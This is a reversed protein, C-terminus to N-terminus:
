FLTIGRVLSFLNSISVGFKIAQKTSTFSNYISLSGNANFAINTGKLPFYVGASLLAGTNTVGVKHIDSRSNVSDFYVEYIQYSEWIPGVTGGIIFTEGGVLGGIGLSFEHSIGDIKNTIFVNEFFINHINSYSASIGIYAQNVLHIGGMGFVGYGYDLYLGNYLGFDGGALYFVKQSSFPKMDFSGYQEVRASENIEREKTVIRAEKTVKLIEFPVFELVAGSNLKLKYYENVNQEILIGRFVTGNKLYVVDELEDVIQKKTSDPSMAALCVSSNGFLLIAIAVITIKILSNISIKM